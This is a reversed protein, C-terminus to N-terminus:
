FFQNTDNSEAKVVVGAVIVGSIMLVGSSPLLVDHHATNQEEDCVVVVTWGVLSSTVISISSQMTELPSTDVVLIFLSESASLTSTDM